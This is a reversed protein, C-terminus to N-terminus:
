FNEFSWEKKVWQVATFKFPFKDAAVKIKIRAHQEWFGKVEFLQISDDSMLAMFDPLYTTRDALKLRIPEYDYWYILGAKKQLELYEAFRTELKNMQGPIRRTGRGFRKM